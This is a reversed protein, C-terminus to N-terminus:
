HPIVNLFFFKIRSLTNSFWKKVRTFVNNSPTSQDNVTKQANSVEQEALEETKKTEIEQLQKRREIALKNVTEQLKQNLPTDVSLKISNTLSLLARMLNKTNDIAGMIIRISDKFHELRGKTINQCGNIGDMVKGFHLKHHGDFTTYKSVKELSEEILPKLANIVAYAECGSLKSLIKDLEYESYGPSKSLIMVDIKSKIKELSKASIKGKAIKKEIADYLSDEEKIEFQKDRKPIMQIFLKHVESKNSFGTKKNIIGSVLDFLNENLKSRLHNELLMIDRKSVEGGINKKFNKIKDKVNREESKNIVNESKIQSIIDNSLNIIEAKRKAQKERTIDNYPQINMKEDRSAISPFLPSTVTINAEKTEPKEKKLQEKRELALKDVIELLKIKLAKNLYIDLKSKIYTVTHELKETANLLISKTMAEFGAERNKTIYNCGIMDSLYKGFFVAKKDVPDTCDLIKNFKDVILEDLITNVDSSKFGSLEQHITYLVYESYALAKNEIMEDIKKSIKNLSKKTIILQGKKKLISGYISDEETIKKGLNSTDELEKPVEPEKLLESKTLESYNNIRKDCIELVVSRVKENFGENRLKSSLSLKLTKLFVGINCSDIKYSQECIINHINSEERNTINDKDQIALVIDNESQKLISETKPENQVNSDNSDNVSRNATGEISLSGQSNVTIYKELIKNIEEYVAKSRCSLALVQAELLTSQFAEGLMEKQSKLIIENIKKISGDTISKNKEKLVIAESLSHKKTDISKSNKIVNSYDNNDELKVPGAQQIIVRRISDCFIRSLKKDHNILTNLCGILRCYEKGDSAIKVQSLSDIFLSKSLREDGNIAIHRSLYAAIEGTLNKGKQSYDIKQTFHKVINITPM